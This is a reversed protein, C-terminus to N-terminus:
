EATIAVVGQYILASTGQGQSMCLTYSGNPYPQEPTGCRIVAQDGAQLPGTFEDGGIGLSGTESSLPTSTKYFSNGYGDVGEAVIYEEGSLTATYIRLWANGFSVYLNIAAHPGQTDTGGGVWGIDLFLKGVTGETPADEELVATTDVFTNQVGEAEGEADDVDVETNGSHVFSWSIASQGNLNLECSCESTAGASGYDGTATAACNSTALDNEPPLQSAGDNWAFSWPGGDWPMIQGWATTTAWSTQSTRNWHYQAFLDSPSVFAWVIGWVAALVLSRM